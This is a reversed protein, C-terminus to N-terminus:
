INGNSTEFKCCRGKWLLAGGRSERESEGGGKSGLWLVEEHGVLGFRCLGCEGRNYAHLGCWGGEAMENSGWVRVKGEWLVLVVGM